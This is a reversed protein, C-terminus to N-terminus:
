PVMRVIADQLAFNLNPQALFNTHRDKVQLMMSGFIDVKSESLNLLGEGWAAMSKFLDFAPPECQAKSKQYM